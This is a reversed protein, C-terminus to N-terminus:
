RWWALAMAAAGSAMIVAGAVRALMPGRALLKELAIVMAVAAMVAVNMVGVVLQVLMLAWCCAVCFAGHHFGLRLAGRWGGHQHNAVLLLPDRCHRLCANKWPTLQFAGAVVLATGALFPVARSFADFRMAAQTVGVGAAYALMGFGLWTLFYGAALITCHLGTHKAHRFLLVRRYLLLVPLTSPLMMAVMMALWMVAFMVAAGAWAGMPMWVMSMRWGGPMAMSARMSVSFYGTPIAAALFIAATVAHTRWEGATRVPVAPSTAGQNM